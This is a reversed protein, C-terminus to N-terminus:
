KATEDDKPCSSIGLPVYLGCKGVAGTAFLIIGFAIIFYGLPGGGFLRFIGFAVALAGFIIRAARDIGCVNKPIAM